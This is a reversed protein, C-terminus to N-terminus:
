STSSRWQWFVHTFSSTKAFIIVIQSVVVANLGFLLYGAIGLPLLAAFLTSWVTELALVIKTFLLMVLHSFSHGVNIYATTRGMPFMTM